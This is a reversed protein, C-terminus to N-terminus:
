RRSFIALSDHRGPWRPLSVEASQHWGTDLREYLPDTSTQARGDTILALWQPRLGDLVAPLCGNPREPWCVFLARDAHAALATEDGLSVSSWPPADAIWSNAAPPARDYAIVDGDRDRLLRAWYGAGAGLEVLPGLQAIRDVAEATPVAYAYLRLLDGLSHGGLVRPHGAAECARWWALYAPDAGAWAVQRDRPDPLGDEMRGDHGGVPV